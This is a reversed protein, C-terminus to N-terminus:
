EEKIIIDYDGIDICKDEELKNCYFTYLQDFLKNAIIDDDDGNFYLKDINLDDNHFYPQNINLDIFCSDEYKWNIFNDLLETLSDSNLEKSKPIAVVNAHAVKYYKEISKTELDKRTM